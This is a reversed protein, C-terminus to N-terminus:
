CCECAGITLHMSEVHTWRQSQGTRVMCSYQTCTCETIQLNDLSALLQVSGQLISFFTCKALSNSDLSFSQLHPNQEQLIQIQRFCSPILSPSCTSLLTANSFLNVPSRPRQSCPLSVKLFWIDVIMPSTSRIDAKM